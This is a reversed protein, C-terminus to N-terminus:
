ETPRRSDWRRNWLEEAYQINAPVKTEKPPASGPGPLPLFWPAAFRPNYHGPIENDMFVHDLGGVNGDDLYFTPGDLIAVRIAYHGAEPSGNWWATNLWCVKDVYIYRDMSKERMERRLDVTKKWYEEHWDFCYGFYGTQKGWPFQAADVFRLVAVKVKDKEAKNWKPIDDIM